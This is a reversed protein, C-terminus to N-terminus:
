GGLRARVLRVCPTASRGPRRAVAPRRPRDGAGPAPAAHGRARGHPDGAASAHPGGDRPPDVRGAPPSSTPSSGSARSRSRCTSRWARRRRRPRSRSACRTRRAAAPDGATRGLESSRCRARREPASGRRRGARRADEDLLHEVRLRRDTCRSPSSPRPSSVSGVVEAVLRESPARPSACACAPRGSACSPWSRPCWGAAPRAWSASAPTAPRSGRAADVPRGADGRAGPPHAPGARAGGRGFETPAAGRRSRVLLPVGLETELQRVQESVNSQVTHLEDAAAHVLGDRRHGASRRPPPTGHATGDHGFRPGYGSPASRRTRGCSRGDHGIHCDNRGISRM